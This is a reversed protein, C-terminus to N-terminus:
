RGQYFQTYNFLLFAGLSDIRYKNETFSVQKANTTAVSNIDGSIVWPLSIPIFLSSGSCKNYIFISVETYVNENSKKVFFRTFEGNTIQSETLIPFYPIPFFPIDKRNQNTLISYDINSDDFRYDPPLTNTPTPLGTYSGGDVEPTNLTLRLNPGNNPEKGTFYKGDSTKFYFGTYQNTTYEVVFEGNSYLNTEIQNKPYYM